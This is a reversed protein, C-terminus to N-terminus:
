SYAIVILWIPKVLYPLWKLYLWDSLQKAKNRCRKWLFRERTRILLTSSVVILKTSGLQYKSLYIRSFKWTGRSLVNDASLLNEIISPSYMFIFSWDFICYLIQKCRLICILRHFLELGTHLAKFIVKTLQNLM